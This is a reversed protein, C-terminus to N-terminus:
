LYTLCFMPVVTLERTLIGSASERHLSAPAWEPQQVSISLHNFITLGRDLSVVVAVVLLLGVISSAGALSLLGPQEELDVESWSTLLLVTTALWAVLKKTHLDVWHSLCQSVRCLLAGWHFSKSARQWSTSIHSHTRLESSCSFLICACVTSFSKLSEWIWGSM